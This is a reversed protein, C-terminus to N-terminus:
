QLVSVAANLCASLFKSEVGEQRGYFKWRRQLLNLIQVSNRCYKIQNELGEKNDYACVYILVGILKRVAKGRDHPRVPHNNEMPAFNHLLPSIGGKDFMVSVVALEPFELPVPINGSSSM